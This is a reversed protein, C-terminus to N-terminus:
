RAHALTPMRPLLPSAPVGNPMAGLRHRDQVLLFLSLFLSDLIIQASTIDHGESAMEEILQRQRDICAHLEPVRCDREVSKPLALNDRIHLM